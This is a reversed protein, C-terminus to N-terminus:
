MSLGVLPPVIAPLTLDHLLQNQLYLNPLNPHGHEPISQVLFPLTQVGAQLTNEYFTSISVAKSQTRERIM